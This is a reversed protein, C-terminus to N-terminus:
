LGSVGGKYSRRLWCNGSDQLQLPLVIGTEFSGQRIQSREASVKDGVRMERM